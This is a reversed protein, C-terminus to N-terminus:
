PILRAFTNFLYDGRTEQRSKPDTIEFLINRYGMYRVNIQVDFESLFELDTRNPFELRNESIQKMINQIHGLRIPAIYTFEDISAKKGDETYSLPYNLKVVFDNIGITTDASLEGTKIDLNMREYASFDDLCRNLNLSVYASIHDEMAEKTVTVDEGEYYHYAAVIEDHYVPQSDFYIYGGQEALLYAADLSVEELCNEIYAQISPLKEREEIITPGKVVFIILATMIVLVAGIIIFLTIQGKRDM